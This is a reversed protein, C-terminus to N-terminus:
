FSGPYRNLGAEIFGRYAWKAKYDKGFLLPYDHNFSAYGKNFFSDRDGVGWTTIGWQQKKPVNEMYGKVIAKFKAGQERAMADTLDFTKPMQYKVSIDIESIHVLLGADAAVKLNTNIKNVDIRLVTHMQFGMGDIKIGRQKATAVLEMIKRMKKGGFEQGYDNYFLKVKPDAQQAYKFAKFFYEEGLKRLWINDKFTGNDAIAENVVDWSTVQGKFHSVVTTIHEKLLRDFDAANGNYNLLWKPMTDDKAWILCHGHVVMKNEQAFKVIADAKAFTYKDKEPHTSKFKFNSESSLRNFDKKLTSAYLPEELREKVVAAGIPFDFVGKLTYNKLHYSGKEATEGLENASVVTESQNVSEEPAFDEDASKKCATFTTAFLALALAAAKLKNNTIPSTSRM